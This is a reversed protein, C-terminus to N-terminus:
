NESPKTPAPKKKWTGKKDVVLKEQSALHALYGALQESSKDYRNHLFSCV